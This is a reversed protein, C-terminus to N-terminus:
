DYIKSILLSYEDITDKDHLFYEEKSVGILRMIRNEQKAKELRKQYELHEVLKDEIMVTLKKAIFRTMM